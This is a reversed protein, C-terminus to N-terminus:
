THTLAPKRPSAGLNVMLYKEIDELQPIIEKKFFYRASEPRLFYLKNNVKVAVQKNNDEHVLYAARVEALNHLMDEDILQQFAQIVNYAGSFRCCKDVCVTLIIM